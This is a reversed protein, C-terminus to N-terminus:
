CPKKPKYGVNVSEQWYEFLLNGDNDYGKYCPFPDGIRHSYELKIASIEVTVDAGLPSYDGGVYYTYPQQSFAETIYAIKEM